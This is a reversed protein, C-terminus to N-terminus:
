RQQHTDRLTALQELGHLCAESVSTHSFYVKTMEQLLMGLIHPGSLTVKEAAAESNGGKGERDCAIATAYRPIAYYQYSAPDPFQFRGCLRPRIGLGGTIYLLSSRDDLLSKGNSSIWECSSPAQPHLKAKCDDM